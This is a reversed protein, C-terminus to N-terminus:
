PLPVGFDALLDVLAMLPLGIISNPDRGRFSEFLVIGFGEAYFGGAADLPQEVELYRSIAGDSLNRFTVEHSDVITRSHGDKCDVLCLGTHLLLSRGSLSALQAAATALDRPKGLPEGDRDAVQDAGIVLHASGAHRGAIARAKAEALRAALAEPREGAVPTEDVEPSEILFPQRLRELLARRYPSTSALILM